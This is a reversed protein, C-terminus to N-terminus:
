WREEQFVLRSAFFIARPYDRAIRACLEELEPAAETGIAMRFDAALGLGRALGVYRQLTAETEAAMRDVEEVGKMNGAEVVAASV